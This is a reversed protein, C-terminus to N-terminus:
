DANTPASESFRDPIDPIPRNNPPLRSQNVGVRDHRHDLPELRSTTREGGEAEPFAGRRV